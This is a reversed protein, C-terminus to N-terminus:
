VCIRRSEDYMGLSSFLCCKHPSHLIHINLHDYAHKTARHLLTRDDYDDGDCGDRRDGYDENANLRFEQVAQVLDNVTKMGEGGGAFTSAVNINTCVDNQSPLTRSDERKSRQLRSRAALCAVIAKAAGLHNAATLIARLHKYTFVLSAQQITTLEYFLQGSHAYICEVLARRTPIDFANDDDDNRVGRYPRVGTKLAQKKVITKRQVERENIIEEQMAENQELALAYTHQMSALLFDAQQIRAGQDLLDLMDELTDEVEENVKQNFLRAELVTMDTTYYQHRDCILHM